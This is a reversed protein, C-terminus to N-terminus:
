FNIRYGISVFLRTTNGIELGAPNRGLEAGAEVELVHGRRQYDLRGSPAYFITTYGTDTSKRQFLMRPGIRWAGFLPYRSIFQWGIVDYTPATDYRVIIQNFDYSRLLSEGMLQVQYSIENGDTGPFAEVGASAPTSALKTCSVDFLAQFREGLQKLASASYTSLVATRDRALEAIQQRDYLQKLQSISTVLQGILANGATILPANRHELDVTVQLRGPL